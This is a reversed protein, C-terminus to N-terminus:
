LREWIVAPRGCRYSAPRTGARRVKREVLLVNLMVGPNVIGTAARLEMTDLPGAALADLVLARRPSQEKGTRPDPRRKRM